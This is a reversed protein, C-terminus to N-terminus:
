EERNIDVSVGPRYVNLAKSLPWHPVEPVARTSSRDESISRRISPGVRMLQALWLRSLLSVAENWPSKEMSQVSGSPVCLLLGLTDMVPGPNYVTSIESPNPQLILSDTVTLVSIVWTSISTGSSTMIGHSSDPMRMLASRASLRSSMSMTHCPAVAVLERASQANAVLAPMTEM